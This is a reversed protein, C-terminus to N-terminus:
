GLLAASGTAVLSMSSNAEKGLDDVDFCEGEIVASLEGIM